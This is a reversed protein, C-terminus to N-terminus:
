QRRSLTTSGTGDKRIFTSYPPTRWTFQADTYKWQYNIQNGAPTMTSEFRYAIDKDSDSFRGSGTCNSSAGVVVCSATSNDRTPGDQLVSNVSLTNGAASITLTAKGGVWNGSFSAPMVVAPGGGGGGAVGAGGGGGAGALGAMLPGGSICCTSSVESRISEMLFCNGAGTNNLAFPKILTWAVCRPEGACATACAFPTDSGPGASRLSSGEIRRNGRMGPGIPTGVAQPGSVCCPSAIAPVPKNKIWCTALSGQVGPRVWTWSGCTFEQACLDACSQPTPTLLPRLEGPPLIAVADPVNNGNRLDGGPMDTNDLMGPALPQAVAAIPMLVLGVWVVCASITQRM